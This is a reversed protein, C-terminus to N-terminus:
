SATRPGRRTTADAVVVVRRMAAVDHVRVLDCGRAIALAVAAATGELRQDPPLQLAHGTFSKRSPGVLLPYGLPQLENLRDLLEFNQEVTKGFGLGPDIIIREPAVGASLALDVSAQLENIIEGLLETYHVGVYRGGLVADQVADQTRSRNHMLVVAAGHAAAVHALAPDHKFGWVDNIITAGAALAQRAVEAKATDVSIPVRTASALAQIVPVVRRVEEDLPTPQSGPRTSEGGVDLLDAGAALMAQAQALAATVWDAWNLLGDGSFSDPTLNLIGMVYTRSGWVFTSDGVTLTPYRTM